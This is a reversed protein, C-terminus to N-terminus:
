GSKGALIKEPLSTLSNDMEEDDDESKKKNKGKSKKSDSNKEQVSTEGNTLGM